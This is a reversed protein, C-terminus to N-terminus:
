KGESAGLLREDEQRAVRKGEDVNVSLLLVIGVIFFLILSLIGWRSNHLAFGAVAFLLPGLLSAFKEMISFLGFFEGSKSAPSMAAYLSRSLAQSGGQVMAVMWALFWFEITSSLFFGWVAIVSYVVLALIIARKTDITAALRSFLPPGAVLAFVVGVANVALLMGLIRGIVPIGSARVPPKVDIEYVAIVAGTSAPNAQGTNLLSLTHQGASPADLTDKVNYRREASYTDIQVPQGADDLLPQGDLEVAMIGGDPGASYLVDARQGNFPFDLAAGSTSATLYTEDTPPPAFPNDLFGILGAPRLASGSITQPQWAGSTQVLSTSALPYSGEGLAEATTVFPPPPAGTVDIPLVNRGILAFAPLAVLNFVIFALFMPRRKEESSSIRGFILSFPIGVFQVLLLALITDLAAFGLETAYIAAVGIITGIGDNYILFALLYKFLDRYQGIDKLTQGLRQLSVGIVTEGPALSATASPPEPVRRFLPISFILWWLAVSVFSVRAGFTFGWVQIMAVNVALLIGGGLYGLAYGLASVRDQDDPRAVHPLLADYFTISGNFGVRGLIALASALIWDGTMVFFLLSTGLIGIGAFIALFRKKGRMVDSITGLIPSLVAVILLSISLGLSWYATATAETPLTAGAVASYYIPLVAALITTAFASNAWDYMTWARIRRKYEKPDLTGLAATANLSM